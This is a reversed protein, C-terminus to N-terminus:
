RQEDLREVVRKHHMGGEAVALNPSAHERGRWGCECTPKWRDIIISTVTMTHGPPHQKVDTPMM